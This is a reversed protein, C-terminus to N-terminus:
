HRQKQQLNDSWDTESVRYVLKAGSVRGERMAQMGDIIGNLGAARKWQPHVKFLGKEWLKEVVDLYQKGFALFEPQANYKDSEFIYSEGSISYGLFFVSKVDPRACQVGLLNCYIGGLSGFAKACQAATSDTSVCDLIKCLSNNTYQNIREGVDLMRYDLVVDAGRNQLLEFHKPSATTIM